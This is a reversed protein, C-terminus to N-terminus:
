HKGLARSQLDSIRIGAEKAIIRLERKLAKEHDPEDRDIVFEGILKGTSVQFAEYLIFHGTIQM